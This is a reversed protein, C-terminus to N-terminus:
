LLQMCVASVYSDDTLNGREDMWRRELVAGSGVPIFM